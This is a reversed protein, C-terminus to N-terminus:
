KLPEGNFLFTATLLRKEAKSVKVGLEQKAKIKAINEELGHAAYKVYVTTNLCAIMDKHRSRGWVEVKRNTYKCTEMNRTLFYSTGKNEVFVLAERSWKDALDMSITAKVFKNHDLSIM